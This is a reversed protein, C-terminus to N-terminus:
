ESTKLLEEPPKTLLRAIVIAPFLIGLTSLFVSLMKAASNAPQIEGFGVTTLSVLSFYIYDGFDQDAGTLEVEGKLSSGLGAQIMELSFAGLMAFLLYVNVAGMVRHFNFRDDRFLLDLNTVIFIATNLSYTIWLLSKFTNNTSLLDAINLVLSASFFLIALMLMSKHRASWIGALYITMLTLHITQPHLIEFELLVPMVFITLSLMVLLVLFSVDEIWFSRLAAALSRTSM